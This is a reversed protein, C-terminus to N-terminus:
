LLNNDQADKYRKKLREITQADNANNAEARFIDKLMQREKEVQKKLDALKNELDNRGSREEEMFKMALGERKIQIARQVQEIQEQEKQKMEELSPIQLGKFILIQSIVFIVIFFILGGRLVQFRNIETNGIKLTPNQSM